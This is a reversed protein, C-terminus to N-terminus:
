YVAATIRVHIKGTFNTESVNWYLRYVASVQDVYKSYYGTPKVSFVRTSQPSVNCLEATNRNLDEAVYESLSYERKLTHDICDTSGILIRNCVRTHRTRNILWSETHKPDSWMHAHSQWLM